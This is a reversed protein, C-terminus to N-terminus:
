LVVSRFMGPRMKSHFDALGFVAFTRTLDPCVAWMFPKKPPTKWCMLAPIQYIDFLTAKISNASFTTQKTVHSLGAKCFCHRNCCICHFFLPIHSLVEPRTVAATVSFAIFFNTLRDHFTLAIKIVHHTMVNETLFNPFPKGTFSQM